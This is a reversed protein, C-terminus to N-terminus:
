KKAGHQLPAPPGYLDHLVSDWFTEWGDQVYVTCSKMNVKELNFQRFLNVLISEEEDDAEKSAKAIYTCVHEFAAILQLFEQHTGGKDPHKLLSLKRYRSSVEKITPLPHLKLGLFTLDEEINRQKRPRGRM